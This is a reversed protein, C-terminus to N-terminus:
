THNLAAKGRYCVSLKGECSKCMEVVSLDDTEGAKQLSQGNLIHSFRFLELNEVFKRQRMGRMSEGSDMDM